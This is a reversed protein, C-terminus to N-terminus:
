EPQLAHSDGEEGPHDLCHILQLTFTHHLPLFRLRTKAHATITKHKKSLKFKTSAPETLHEAKPKLMRTKM